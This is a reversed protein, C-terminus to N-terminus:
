RSAKQSSSSPPTPPKFAGVLAQLSSTETLHQSPNPELELHHRLSARSSSSCFDVLLQLVHQRSNDETLLSFYRIMSVVPDEEGEGIKSEEENKTRQKVEKM